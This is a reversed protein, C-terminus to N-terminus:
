GVRPTPSIYVSEILETVDVDVFVGAKKGKSKAVSMDFTAARLEKEHDFSKRKVFEESLCRAAEMQKPASFDVYKVM